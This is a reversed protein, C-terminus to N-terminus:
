QYTGETRSQHAKVVGLIATAHLEVLCTLGFALQIIIMHLTKHPRLQEIYANM